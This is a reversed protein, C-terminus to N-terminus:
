ERSGCQNIHLYILWVRWKNGDGALKYQPGAAFRDASDRMAPAWQDVTLVEGAM